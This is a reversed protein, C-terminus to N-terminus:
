LAGYNLTEDQKLYLIEAPSKTIGMGPNTKIQNITLVIINATRIYPLLETFFRGIEATLRMRDTQSTVDELKAAEKKDNENVHTSLTAISDIIIVTPEYAIIENGFEDKVGTNYKYEDPNKTKEMYIEIISKKIDSISNREQRLIYKDGMESMKFKSLVQIRSYNMAQELDFHMVFGNNFNRVINSAIQVMSTTKSTSPLGIATLYCGGPIGISPRQEILNDDKDYINVLYGLYYDLVPFGSKYSIVTGNVDFLKDKGSLERLERILKNAM